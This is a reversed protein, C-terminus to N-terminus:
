DHAQLDEFDHVLAEEDSMDTFRALLFRQQEEQSLHCKGDWHAQHTSHSLDVERIWISGCRGECVPCPRSMAFGGCEECGQACQEDHWCNWCLQCKNVRRKFDDSAMLQEVATRTFQEAQHKYEKPSIQEAYNCPVTSDDTQSDTEELDYDNSPFDEWVLDPPVENYDDGWMKPLTSPDSQPWDNSFDMDMASDSPDM